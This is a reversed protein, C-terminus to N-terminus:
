TYYKEFLSNVFILDSQSTIKINNSSCEVWFVPIGYKECLGSEDTFNCGEEIAKDFLSKILHYEFAQPTFANILEERSITELIKDGSIRKTTHIQKTAPIIAKKVEVDEILKQILEDSVFPRVGDHILVFNTSSDLQNLANFVSDGRTRGGSTLKLNQYKKELFLFDSINEKPLVIMVEFFSFAKQFREITWEILPRGKIEYFQKKGNSSFRSGNGAATIILSIKKGM